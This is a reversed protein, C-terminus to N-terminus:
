INDINLHANMNLHFLEIERAIFESSSTAIHPATEIEVREFKAKKNNM